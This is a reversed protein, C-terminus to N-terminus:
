ICRPKDNRNLVTVFLQATDCLPEGQVTCQSCVQYTITDNGFFNTKPKYIITTDRSNVFAFGNTGNTLIKVNGIKGFGQFDNARVDATLNSEECVTDYDDFALPAICENLTYINIVATDCCGETTDCLSYVVQDIGFYGNAATYTITGDANVSVTNGAAPGSVITVVSGKGVSDVYTDNKLENIVVPVGNAGQAYDLNAVPCDVVPTVIVTIVGTDCLSPNGNDCAVYCFSDRGNFNPAPTYTICNGNIVTTGNSSKCPIVTVSVVDGADPDSIAPCIVM